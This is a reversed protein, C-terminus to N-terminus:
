LEKLYRRVDEHSGVRVLAHAARGGGHQRLGAAITEHPREDFAQEADFMHCYLLEM